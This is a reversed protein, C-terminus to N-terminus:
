LYKKYEIYAKDWKATNKPKYEKKIVSNSIINKINQPQERCIQVALNGLATGDSSGAVVTKNLADAISRCLYSDKIGGGIIYIKPFDRHLIKIMQDFTYRYKLILSNYVCSIIEADNNTTPQNTQKLYINIKEKINGKSLFLASDPDIFLHIFHNEAAIKSIDSFNYNKGINIFYRKLEQILWLGTINKQFRTTGCFGIENTFNYSYTQANILPKELQTGMISWSGSSIYALEKEMAPISVVACATDHSAVAVVEKKSLGLESCLQKKLTGISFGPSILEPFFKTDFHFQKIIKQNWSKKYQDLIQTTSCIALEGYSKGTLMYNILDPIMLIKETQSYKEPEQERLALLQFITNIEMIQNGTYRYLEELSLYKEASKFINATREDRYSYPIDVLNGEKGILGFDVGWSDVGISQFNLIKSAKQIGEKIDSFIQNINWKLAGDILLPENSFRYIEQTIIKGNELNGLIIKVGSSGLDVALASKM